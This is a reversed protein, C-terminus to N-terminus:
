LIGYLLVSGKISHVGIPYHYCCSSKNNLAWLPFMKYILLSFIIGYECHKHSVIVCFVTDVQYTEPPLPKSMVPLQSM